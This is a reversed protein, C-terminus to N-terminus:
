NVRFKEACSMRCNQTPNKLLAICYYHQVAQANTADCVADILERREERDEIAFKVKILEHDSLARELEALVPASAGNSAVTVIPKLSHGIARFQKKQDASLM